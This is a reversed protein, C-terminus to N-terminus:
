IKGKYIALSPTGTYLGEEGCYSKSDGTFFSWGNGEKITIIFEIENNINIEKNIVAFLDYKRPGLNTKIYQSLDITLDFKVKGGGDLDLLLYDPSNFFAKEGIIQNGSFGCNCKINNNIYNKNFVNGILNGINDNQKNDLQLMSSLHASAKFINGCNPCKKYYLLIYYFIDVLPCKYDRIFENIFTSLESKPFDNPFNYQNIALKNTWNILKNFEEKFNYLINYYLVMPRSGQTKSEKNWLQNIFLIIYNNYNKNPIQNNNNKEIIELINFLLIPFYNDKDKLNILNNMIMLKVNNMNELRYFFQLICKMSSIIKNSITDKQINELINLIESTEPRENPNDRYMRDVLEILRKDYFQANKAYLNIRKVSQQVEDFQTFTPLHFNMMYYITYGLSFIDCKYDYPVRNIIEPCVYDPRGVISCGYSFIGYGNRYLASIGFDTIKISNNNSILINDPKIDRHLIGNEHLYKLGLLIEKFIYIILYQEIHGNPYNTNFKILYKELDVGQILESVFYTYNYDEFCRYLNVINYHSIQSMIFKERKLNKEDEKDEPKKLWKVAYIKNNFKSKMKYVAGFKGKGLLGLNEFDSIKNGINLLNNM